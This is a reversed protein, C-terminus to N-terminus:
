LVIVANPRCLSVSKAYEGVDVRDGEKMTDSHRLRRNQKTKTASLCSAVSM